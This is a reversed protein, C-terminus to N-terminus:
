AGLGGHKVRDRRHDLRPRLGYPASRSESRPFTRVALAACLFAIPMELFVALLLAMRHDTGPASTTVDFWADILLSTATAAAALCRREDRLRVLVGTTVLGLAEITDLGVWATSWHQARTSSPLRVALVFLWPIMALGAAILARAPWPSRAATRLAATREHEAHGIPTRVRGRGADITVM